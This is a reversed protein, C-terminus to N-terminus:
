HIGPRQNSGTPVMRVGPQTRGFPAQARGRGYTTQVQYVLASEEEEEDEDPYTYYVEEEPQVYQIRKQPPRNCEPPFHRAEGCQACWVNARSTPVTKIPKRNEALNVQIAALTDQINKMMKRSDDEEVKVKVIKKGNRDKGNGSHRNRNRFSVVV